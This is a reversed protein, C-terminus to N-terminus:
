DKEHRFCRFVIYTVVFCGTLVLMSVNSKFTPSLSSHRFYIDLSGWICFFYLLFAIIAPIWGGKKGDNNSLSIMKIPTGIIIILEIVPTFFNFGWSLDEMSYGITLILSFVIFCGIFFGVPNSLFRERAEQRNRIQEEKQVNNKNRDNLRNNNTM